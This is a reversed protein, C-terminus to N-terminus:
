NLNFKMNHLKSLKNNLRTNITASSPKFHNLIIHFNPGQPKLFHYSMLTLKSLCPDAPNRGCQFPLMLFLCFPQCHSFSFQAQTLPQSPAKLYTLQGDLFAWFSDPGFSNTMHSLPHKWNFFSFGLSFFLIM